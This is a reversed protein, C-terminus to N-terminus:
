KSKSILGKLSAYPFPTKEYFRKLVKVVGPSFESSKIRTIYSSYLKDAISLFQKTNQHFDDTGMAEEALRISKEIISKVYKSEFAKFKSIDDMYGVSLIASQVRSFNRQSVMFDTARAVYKIAEEDPFVISKPDFNSNYLDIAKKILTGSLEKRMQTPRHELEELIDIYDAGSENSVSLIRKGYQVVEQLLTIAQNALEIKSEFGNKKNSDSGAFSLNNRIYRISSNYDRTLSESLKELISDIVYGPEKTNFYVKKLDDEDMTAITELSNYLIPFDFYVMNEIFDFPSSSIFEELEALDFSSPNLLHYDTLERYGPRLIMGVAEKNSNIEKLFPLGSKPNKTLISVVSLLSDAIVSELTKYEENQNASFKEM